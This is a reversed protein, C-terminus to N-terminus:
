PYKGKSARCALRGGLVKCDAIRPLLTHETSYGDYKIHKPPGQWYTEVMIPGAAMHDQKFITIHGENNKMCRGFKETVVCGDVIFYQPVWGHPILSVIATAAGVEVFFSMRCEIHEGELKHVTIDLKWVLTSVTLETLARFQVPDLEMIRMQIQDQIGIPYPRPSKIREYCTVQSVPHHCLRWSSLQDRVYTRVNLPPLPEAIFVVESLSRGEKPRFTPLSTLIFHWSAPYTFAFYLNLPKEVDRSDRIIVLEVGDRPFFGHQLVDEKFLLSSQGLGLSCKQSTRLANSVVLSLCVKEAYIAEVPIIFSLSALHHIHLKGNGTVTVVTSLKVTCDWAAIHLASDGTRSYDEAIIHTEGAQGSDQCPEIPLLDPFSTSKFSQSWRRPSTESSSRPRSANNTAVLPDKSRNSDRSAQESNPLQSLITPRLRYRSRHFQAMSKWKLSGRALADTYLPASFSTQIGKNSSDHPTIQPKVPYSASPSGPPCPTSDRADEGSWNPFPRNPTSSINVNVTAISDVSSPSSITSNLNEHDIPSCDESPSSEFPTTCPAAQTANPSDSISNLISSRRQPFLRRVRSDWLGCSVSEQDETPSRQETILNYEPDM